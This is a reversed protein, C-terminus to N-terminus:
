IRRKPLFLSTQSVSVGKSEWVILFYNEVVVNGRSTVLGDSNM